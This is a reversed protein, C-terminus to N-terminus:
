ESVLKVFELEEVTFGTISNDEDRKFNIMQGDQDDFFRDTDEPYLTFTNNGIKGKLLEGDIFMEVQIGEPEAAYNGIYSNLDAVSMEIVTRVDPLFVNWDYASDISRAIENMLPGGLDGNTMIVMGEGGAGAFSFLMCRYGENAGGHRFYLSDGEGGLGPGLGWDNIHKTLIKKATESQIFEGSGDNYARQIAMAWNALDSPTTWLGAAAIEPYTHWKGRVPAGDPRHGIATNETLNAPLPQEYTSRNMGVPNLVTEQMFDPFSSNFNREIVYQM